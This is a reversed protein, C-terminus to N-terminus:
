PAKSVLIDVKVSKESFELGEFPELELDATFSKSSEIDSIDLTQTFVESIKQLNSRPGTVTVTTPLIRTDVISFAPDSSGYFVAKVKLSKKILEDLSLTLVPDNITVRVRSDIRPIMERELRFRYTGRKLSTVEHTINIPRNPYSLLTSRPGRLTVDKAFFRGEKVIMQSPTSITVDLRRTIEITEDSQVIYWLFFAAAFSMLKQYINNLFLRRIWSLM